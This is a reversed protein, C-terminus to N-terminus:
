LALCALPIVHIGSPLTYATETGTVVALFAPQGACDLDVKDRLRLLNAEAKAIESAGLKVEVAAWSNGFDAIADVELGTNDRYRFLHGGSAETLVRLDRVAMSEFIQGFFEPQRALRDDGSGLAAVALSPDVLHMAPSVMVRARSRLMVSWAPLPEYAFVQQLYDLDARITRPTTSGERGVEKALAALNEEQASRRAVVRLLRAIRQRAPGSAIEEAPGQRRALHELYDRSYDGAVDATVDLLAPWGGVVAERALDRYTLPSIAGISQMGDLLDTWRIDGSSAGREALTMPRMRVLSVRGIGTHRTADDSPAASGSLIFSGPKDARDVARRVANWLGPALQWEDLLRPRAGELVLQPDLQALRAMQPDDLYVESASLQRGTSTKGCGRAGELLVGGMVALRRNVIREIYRARYAM